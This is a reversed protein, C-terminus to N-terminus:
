KRDMIMYKKVEIDITMKLNFQLIFTVGNTYSFVNSLKTRRASKPGNATSRLTFESRVLPENENEISM